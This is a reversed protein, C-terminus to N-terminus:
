SASPSDTSVSAAGLEAVFEAALAEWTQDLLEDLRRDLAQAEATHGESAHYELEKCTTRFRGSGVAGAGGALRHAERAAAALNGEAIAEHVGVLMGDADHRFTALMEGIQASGVAPNAAIMEEDLKLSGISGEIRAM